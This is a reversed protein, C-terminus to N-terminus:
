KLAELAEIIVRMKVEIESDRDKSEVYKLTLEILKEKLKEMNKKDSFGVVVLGGGKNIATHIVKGKLSGYSEGTDKLTVWNKKSKNKAECTMKHWSTKFDEEKIGNKLDFEKEIQYQTKM